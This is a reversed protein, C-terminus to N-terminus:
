GAPKLERPHSRNATTLATLDALGQSIEVDPGAYLGWRNMRCLFGNGRKSESVRLGNFTEYVDPSGRRLQM